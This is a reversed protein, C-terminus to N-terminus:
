YRLIILLMTLSITMFKLVQRRHVFLWKVVLIMSIYNNTNTSKMKMENKWLHWITFAFQDIRGASKM